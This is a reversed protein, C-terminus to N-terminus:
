AAPQQLVAQAATARRRVLDTAAGSTTSSSQFTVSRLAAQYQAVTAGGSLNLVGTAAIWNGTIGPQNVFSLQDKGNAYGGAISISASVLNRM